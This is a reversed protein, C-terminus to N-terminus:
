TKSSQAKTKVIPRTAVAAVQCQYLLTTVLQSALTVVPRGALHIKGEVLKTARLLVDDRHCPPTSPRVRM